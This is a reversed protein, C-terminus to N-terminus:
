GRGSDSSFQNQLTVHPCHVRENERMRKREAPGRLLRPAEGAPGVYSAHCFGSVLKDPQDGDLGWLRYHVFPPLSYFKLKCQITCM